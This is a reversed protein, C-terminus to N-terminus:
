ERRLGPSRVRPLAARGKRLPPLLGTHGARGRGAEGQGARRPPGHQGALVPPQLGPHAGGDEARLPFGGELHPLRVRVGVHGGAQGVAPRCPVARCLGPRRVAEPAAGGPAPEERQTQQSPFIGEARRVTHLSGSPVQQVGLVAASCVLGVEYM